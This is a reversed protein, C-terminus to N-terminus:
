KCKRSWIVERVVGKLMTSSSQIVRYIGPKIKSNYLNKNLCMMM